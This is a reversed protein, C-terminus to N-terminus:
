IEYGEEEALEILEENTLHRGYQQDLYGVAAVIYWDNGRVISKEITLGSEELYKKAGEITGM